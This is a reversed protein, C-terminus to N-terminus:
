SGALEQRETQAQMASDILFLLELASRFCRTKKEEMWVAEGQWTANQRFHVRVIVTAIRGPTHSVERWEGARVQDTPSFSRYTDFREAATERDLTSDLERLLPLLASFRFTKQSVGSYLRGSPEGNNYEDICLFFQRNQYPMANPMALM